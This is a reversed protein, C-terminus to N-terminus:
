KVIPRLFILQSYPFHLLLVLSELQDKQVRESMLYATLFCAIVMGNSDLLVIPIKKFNERLNEIGTQTFIAHTFSNQPFPHIFRQM